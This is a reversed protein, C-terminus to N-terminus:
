ETAKHFEAVNPGSGHALLTWAHHSLRLTILLCGVPVPLQSLWAPWVIYGSLFEHRTYAEVTIHWTGWAILAFVIAALISCRGEAWRHLWAPVMDRFLTISVHDGHTFTSSLAGYVAGVMLYYTVLEFAWPLPAHFAYRLIADASIVLMITVICFVAIAAAVQELRRIVPEV